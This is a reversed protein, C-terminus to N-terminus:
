HRPLRRTAVLMRAVDNLKTNTDQSYRRLVDFARDADLDYREMLIGQAQGVLKRADIAQTLSEENRAAALAISAHRGLIEAIAVSDADFRRPDTAYLTLAGLTAHSTWLRIALAARVGISAAEPSWQPWRDDALTDHVVIARQEAVATIAPGEGAALEVADAKAAVSDTAPGAEFRSGRRVLLVGAASSGVLAPAAEVLLEITEAFGERDNLEQALRAFVDAETPDV